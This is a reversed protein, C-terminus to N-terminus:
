ENSGDAEIGSPIVQYERNVISLIIKAKETNASHPIGDVIVLPYWEYSIVGSKGLKVSFIATLNAIDDFGDFVFNGLGYIILGNNYHEIEQLRHSHSGLVLSAGADIAGTALERQAQIAHNLNEIGYHFYVIVLDAQRRANIVDEQVVPLSAWAIGPNFDNAIWKHTDFNSSTEVPVDTYALLAISLGNKDLILAKRAEQINLGAGFSRINNLQLGNLTDLLGTEGFDLIHNNSLNVVNIGAEALGPASEFPARFTYRKREPQTSNTIACELNAVAWDAERFITKVQIFPELPSDSHILEGISRGLMVDGVAMLTVTPDSHINTDVTAKESPESLTPNPVLTSNPATKQYSGM